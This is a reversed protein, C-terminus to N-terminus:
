SLLIGGNVAVTQGTVYAADDGLLWAVVAGIDDPNLGSYYQM